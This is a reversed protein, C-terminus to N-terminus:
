TAIIQYARDGKKEMIGTRVFIRGVVHVHCGHNTVQKQFHKCIVNKNYRGNNVLTDEYVTKLLLFPIDLFNDKGKGIKIRYGLDGNYDYVKSRCPFDPGAIVNRYKSDEQINDGVKFSERIQKEINLWNM